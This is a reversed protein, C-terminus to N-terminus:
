PVLTEGGSRAAAHAAEIVEATVIADAIDVPPPAGDLLFAALGSYFLQYAGPLTPVAQRAAGTVVHGWSAEPEEGWGPGGPSRGESLAGEQPDMGLKVYAGESGLLRFRPGRDAAVASAWLHVRPGSPYDLALFVDDDVNAHPRRVAIDASVARPPGFLVVVQDLLHTGLDFLIGTGAGPQPDNKWARVPSPSVQPQWREYRSEFTHVTGLVGRQVLDAVTRFDGDWRRNQFPVVATGAAAALAALRRTEGASPTVPKDVVVPRGSALVVEAIAAHTANPTSVVVVDVEGVQVLMEEVTTAVATGPYQARVEAQRAPNATVVTVLDLRPEAAIFPAHFLSGGM